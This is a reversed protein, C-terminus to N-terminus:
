ERVVVEALDQDAVVAALGPDRVRAQVVAAAALGLDQALAQDRAQDRALVQALALHLLPSVM